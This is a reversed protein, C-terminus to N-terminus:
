EFVPEFFAGNKSIAFHLHAGTSVGTKGVTAIQQGRKVEAGKSVLIDQCGTYYTAEGNVHQVIVYNGCNSEFGTEAVTGDAGALVPTGKEAKFDVGSHLREEKTLPHERVGYANVIEANEVPYTYSIGLDVYAEPSDILLVTFKDEFPVYTASANTDTGQAEEKKQQKQLEAEEAELQELMEEKKQKAVEEKLQAEIAEQQKQLEAEEAELQELMEEKKQKAAEEKLQAEVAEQQKQLEVEEAELQEPMEEKKQEVVEEYIHKEEGAGVEEQVIVAEAPLQQGKPRDALLLVFIAGAAFAAIGILWVSKKKIEVVNKIRRKVNNEGFALPYGARWGDRASLALLTYAYEKKKEEGIKGLVLEDCSSEMDCVMLYFALWVLPNFWHVCCGLFWLPKILYDLRRIHMYEHLLVLERKEAGLTEPLYIVPRIIGMVFPEKLQEITFIRMNKILIECSKIGTKEKLKIVFRVYGTGECFLLVCMGFIWACGLIKAIEEPIQAFAGVDTKEYKYAGGGSLSAENMREHAMPNRNDEIEIESTITENPVQMGPEEAYEPLRGQEQAEGVQFLTMQPVLGLNNEWAFPCLLRFLVPLWLLFSINRSIKGFVLRLILVIVIVVLARISMNLVIGFVEGM